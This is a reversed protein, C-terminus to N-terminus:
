WRQVRYRQRHNVPLMFASEGSAEVFHWHTVLGVIESPDRAEPNEARVYVAFVLDAPVETKRAVCVMNPAFVYFFRPKLLYVLVKEGSDDEALPRQIGQFCAHALELRSLGESAPRNPGWTSVNPVPPPEGIVVGWLEMLMQRRGALAAKRVDDVPLGFECVRGRDTPMRARVSQPLDLWAPKTTTM